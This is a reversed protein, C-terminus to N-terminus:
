SGRVMLIGMWTGNKKLLVPTEGCGIIFKEVGINKLQSIVPKLLRYAMEENGSKYILISEMIIKQQIDDPVVFNLKEKELQSQYLGAKITGTTALIAVNNM